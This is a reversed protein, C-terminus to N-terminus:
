NDAATLNVAAVSASILLLIRYKM